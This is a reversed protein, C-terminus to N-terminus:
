RRGGGGAGASVGASAVSYATYQVSKNNSVARSANSIANSAQKSWNKSIAVSISVLQSIKSGGAIAELEEESVDALEGAEFQPRMPLVFYLNTPTEELVQVSVEAPLEVNFERAIVAKPNELLEQKYADSKWARAIIKAELNEQNNDLNQEQESM